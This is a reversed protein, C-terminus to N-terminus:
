VREIYALLNNIEQTHNHWWRTSWIRYVEYGLNELEKQRFIDYAYAENSSHYAKGDCEIIIKRGNIEVLFDARFGGIRKQPTIYKDSIKETLCEYVEQEFPSEVLGEKSNQSRPRDHSNELLAQKVSDAEDLQERSIARAYALYAYFIARKNNGYQALLNHYNSIKEQPISSCIYVKDRARTVLVNLLKYGKELNLPGFLEKFRGNSDKGYTASIIVIDMEDGQINELNKIFFGNKSDRLGEIMNAFEPNAATEENIREIIRNRQPLNFTAIGVSPFKGDKNPVIKEKLLTIVKEVEAENVRNIFQGNVEIYDIPSYAFKEPFPVLNGGYFAVNSFDILAPHQSRYHFDLYTQQGFSLNEAYDLLSESKALEADELQEDTLEESENVDGATQFYNSPPMQHKDGAVVKYKGRIFSTFTDEIRLQSAEDFIVVDFLGLKLPLMADAALPNTLVVPFISTFLNFNENIIKRISNTRSYRNNQRLNYLLRFNGSVNRKVKEYLRRKIVDLQDQKLESYLIMLKDLENADTHFAGNHEELSLLAYYYRWARIAFVWKETVLEGKILGSIIKKTEENQSNYYHAWEHVYPYIESNSKLADFLVIHKEISAVYDKVSEKSSISLTNIKLFPETVANIKSEIDVIDKETQLISKISKIKKKLSSIADKTSKVLETFEENKIIPAVSYESFTSQNRKLSSILSRKTLAQSRNKGFFFQLKDSLTLSPTQNKDELSSVLTLINNITKQVELAGSLFKKVHEIEFCSSFKKLYSDGLVSAVSPELSVLKLFDEHQQVSEDVITKLTKLESEITQISSNRLIEDNNSGLVESKFINKTQKSLKDFAIFYDRVDELDELNQKEQNFNSRAEQISFVSSSETEWVRSSDNCVALLDILLEGGEKIVQNFNDAAARGYPREYVSTRIEKFPSTDLKDLKAYATAADQIISEFTAFEETSFIATRPLYGKLDQWDIGKSHQLFYGVCDKWPIGDVSASRESGHKANFSDRLRVFEAYKIKYKNESNFLFQGENGEEVVMRAKKVVHNRDKSVDEILVAARDLGIQELNHYVVQLATRKECVVLCTGGNALVNTIVATLAQSKGTGPPGQVLKVESDNLTNIIKEKSPDTPVASITTTQFKDIVLKEDQFEQLDKLIEEASKIVSEKRSTFIGFIGSWQIWADDTALSDIKKGAPCAEIKLNVFDSIPTQTNIQSLVNSCIESLEDQTILGDSSYEESLADIAVQADRLIHSRLLENIRIPHESSKKITWHSMKRNSRTIDLSWILLPAKIVKEPDTQDRRIILPYGFGFNRIGSELFQDEDDISINNLKRSIFHLKDKENETLDSFNIGDFNITFEFEEENLLHQLFSEPLGSKISELEKLDLRARANGPIANLHIGRRNGVKLKDLLSKIFTEEFKVQSVISEGKNSM